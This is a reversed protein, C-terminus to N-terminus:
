SRKKLQPFITYFNRWLFVRIAKQLGEHRKFYIFVDLISNQPGYSSRLRKFLNLKTSFFSPIIEDHRDCIGVYKFTLFIKINCKQARLGYDYDGLAHKFCSDIIGLKSFTNYSILTLNGNMLDVEQLLGNPELLNEGYKKGGYSPKGDKGVFAGTIICDEKSMNYADILAELADEYLEVDDNYWIYFDYHLGSEIAANWAKRMGGSWYLKGNGSVIIVDPFAAKVAEGTGDSCGDDTMYIDFIYGRGLKKISSMLKKLGMLTINKRNFVTLLIAIRM